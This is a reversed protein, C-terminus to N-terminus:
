ALMKLEKEWKRFLTWVDGMHELGGPTDVYGSKEQETYTQMIELIENCVKARSLAQAILCQREFTRTTVIEGDDFEVCFPGLGTVTTKFTKPMTEGVTNGTQEPRSRKIIM